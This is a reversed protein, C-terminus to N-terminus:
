GSAITLGEVLLSPTILSKSRDADNAATMRMLFEPLSGAITLENVPFAIAGGEVWFGSAGRSYAGTTASISSGILSTVVLGEGMAAILEDRSRAGESLTLNSVGPSPPAGVGRRAGGPARLGLRRATALDLVWGQLVGGEVLPRPAMAMGEGDFPRSGAGRRRHPDDTLDFGAPLVAEGMRDKLWSAGRAVAEGNIAGLLHGLLSGAVRRDFLVPYAGTKARRPKLRAAARRGARRGIEEASPLDAYHTRSAFDHDTEMGVGEGAIASVSLSAGTRAYGGSFGNTAVYAVSSRRWSAGASEVQAVGAVGLAAAESREALERLRAPSPPAAADEIDLDPLAALDALLAAEPLGCWPDEPAARAMAVARAAMEALVRPDPDSASVSAHRRGILVRLGYDVSEASEAEELAGGRVSVGIDRSRIVLADASEAGARKAAEILAAALDGGEM